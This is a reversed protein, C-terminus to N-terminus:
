LSDLIFLSVRAGNRRLEVETGDSTQLLLHHTNPSLPQGFRITLVREMSLFFEDAEKSSEWGTEWRIGTRGRLTLLVLEDGTWGKAALVGKQPGNFHKLFARIFFEGVSDRYLIVEGPRSPVRVPTTVIENSLFKRAYLIEKTTTPPARFISDVVTYGRLRQVSDIFVVGYDYPFDFGQEILPPFTCESRSTPHDVTPSDVPIPDKVQQQIFVADGEALASLALYSDGSKMSRLRLQHLGFHQDQLAHVAEHVLVNFLSPHWSPVVVSKLEPQYFASTSLTSGELACYAYRFDPPIVGLIKLAKEEFHLKQPSADDLMFKKVIAAFEGQSVSQCGVPSKALLGRLKEATRMAEPFRACGDFQGLAEGSLVLLFFVYTLIQHIKM